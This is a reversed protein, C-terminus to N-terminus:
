LPEFPAHQVGAAALVAFTDKINLETYYTYFKFSAM